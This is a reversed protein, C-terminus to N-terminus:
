RKGLPKRILKDWIELRPEKPPDPPQWTPLGFEAPLPDRIYGVVFWKAGQDYEAILLGGWSGQGIYKSVSFRYFGEGRNRVFDVALLENATDFEAIEPKCNDMFSPFHQRIQNSM